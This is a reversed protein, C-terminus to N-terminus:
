PCALLQTPWSCLLYSSEVQLIQRLSRQHLTQASAYRRVCSCREPLPRHAEDTRCLGAQRERHTGDFEVRYPRCFFGATPRDRCASLVVTILEGQPGHAQTETQGLPYRQAQSQVGGALATAKRSSEGMESTIRPAPPPSPVAWADRDTNAFPVAM